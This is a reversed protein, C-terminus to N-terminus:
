HYSSNVVLFTQELCFLVNQSVINLAEKKKNLFQLTNLCSRIDCDASLFMCIFLHEIRLEMEMDFSCLKPNFPLEPASLYESVMSTKIWRRSQKNMLNSVHATVVGLRNYQNLLHVILHSQSINICQM